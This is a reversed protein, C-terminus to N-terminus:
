VGGAVPRPVCLHRECGRGQSAFRRPATLVEGQEESLGGLRKFLRKEMATAVFVCRHECGGVLWVHKCKKM